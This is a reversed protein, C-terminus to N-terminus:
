FKYEPIAEASKWLGDWPCSVSIKMERGEHLLGTRWDMDIPLIFYRPSGVQPQIKLVLLDSTKRPIYVKDMWRRFAVTLNLSPTNIEDSNAIFDTVADEGTWTDGPWQKRPGVWVLVRSNEPMGSVRLHLEVKAKGIRIPIEWRILLGTSICLLMIWLAYYWRRQFHLASSNFEM